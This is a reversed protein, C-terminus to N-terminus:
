PVQLAPALLNPGGPVRPGVPVCHRHLWNNDHPQCNGGCESGAVYLEIDSLGQLLM